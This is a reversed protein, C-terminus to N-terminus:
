DERLIEKYFQPKREKLIPWERRVRHLQEFNIDALLISDARGTPGGILEGEADVCFSMGYFDQLEESGGRNVRMIYVGNSIANGSIVTQWIHQSKFACSTPAFVIDAGKMRLIRTGEFYFNDWSAQIGIKGHLTEFVPFGSDGPSFYFKEEWLPIDTVHIKRYCGLVEGAQLIVSTSFYKGDAKEFMPLILVADTGKIKNRFITVTEGDIGEAMQFVQANRDKPFWPLNFLEQFCIIKAGQSFAVSLMKLAKEVNKEKDDSCAFQIGSIKM